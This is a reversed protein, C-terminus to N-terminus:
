LPRPPGTVVIVSEAVVLMTGSLDVAWLKKHLEDTMKYEKTKSRM